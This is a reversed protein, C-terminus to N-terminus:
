DTEGGGVIDGGQASTDELADALAEEEIPPLTGERAMSPLLPVRHSLSCDSGCHSCSSRPLSYASQSTPMVHSAAWALAYSRCTEESPLVHAVTALPLALPSPSTM